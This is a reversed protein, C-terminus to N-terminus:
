PLRRTLWGGAWALAFGLAIGILDAAIDSVSATRGVLPHAQAFELVIGYVLLLGATLPRGAGPWGARALLALAAFAALHDLKDWGILSPAGAPGPILAILTVLALVVGFALRM